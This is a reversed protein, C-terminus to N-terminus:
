RAIVVRRYKTEDECYLGILYTGSPLNNLRYEFYFPNEKWHSVDTSIIAQGIDNFIKVQRVQKDNNSASIIFYDKAPNPDVRFDCLLPPINRNRFVQVTDV